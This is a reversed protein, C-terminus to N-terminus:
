TWVSFPSAATLSPHEVRPVTSRATPSWLRATCRGSRNLNGVCSSRGNSRQAATDGCWNATPRIVGDVVLIEEAGKTGPLVTEEYGTLADLVSVPAEFGLTVFVEDGAAVMRRPIEAPGSRFDRLTPAWDPIRKKWLTIGNFADRASLVWNAPLYPSVLSGEDVITFLRGHASVMTSVSALFNHHRVHDPSGIWRLRDPPGVLTDDAVVNNTPDHLYHTWEDMESPWPKETTKGDAAVLTGRPVLVRMLETRSAQTPGTLVIGNVSNDCYPLHQGDYEVVTMRGGLEIGLDAALLRMSAEAKGKESRAVLV